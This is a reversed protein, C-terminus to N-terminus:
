GDVFSDIKERQTCQLRIDISDMPRAFPLGNSVCQLDMPRQTWQVDHGHMDMTGLTAISDTCIELHDMPGMKNPGISVTVM